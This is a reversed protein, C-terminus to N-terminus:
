LFLVTMAWTAEAEPRAMNPKTGSKHGLGNIPMRAQTLM